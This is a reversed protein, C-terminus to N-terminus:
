LRDETVWYGPKSERFISGDASILMCDSFDFTGQSTRVFWKFNRQYLYFHMGKTVQCIRTRTTHTQYGGSNLQVDGNDYETVIPTNHLICVLRDDSPHFTTNHWRGSKAMGNKTIMKM